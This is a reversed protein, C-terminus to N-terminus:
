RYIVWPPKTDTSLMKLYSYLNKILPKETRVCTALYQELGYRHMIIRMSREAINLKEYQTYGDLILFMVSVLKIGTKNPTCNNNAPIKNINGRAKSSM